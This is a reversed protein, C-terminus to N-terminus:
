TRKCKREAGKRIRRNNGLTNEIIRQLKFSRVAFKEIDDHSDIEEDAWKELMDRIKEGPHNSVKHTDLTEIDKEFQMLDQAMEVNNDEISEAIGDVEEVKKKIKNM